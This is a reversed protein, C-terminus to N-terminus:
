TPLGRLQALTRPFAEFAADADEPTAIEKRAFAAAMANARLHAEPQRPDLRSLLDRIRQWSTFRPDRAHLAESFRQPAAIAAYVEGAQEAIAANLRGVAGTEFLHAIAADRAGPRLQALADAVISSLETRPLSPAAVALRIRDVPDAATLIARLPDGPAVGALRWAERHAALVKTEPIAIGQARQPMGNILALLAAEDPPTSPAAVPVAAQVAVIARFLMGARRPSLALGAQHLLAVVTRVYDALPEAQAARVVPIATRALAVANALRHAAAPDPLRDEARIVALQEAEGLRDWGLVPVVFAFRDALAADLPESGLYPTDDVDASPPNMAAWRYRLGELALGQARREHIIPFLKNQIDPRCRSIEDFIVAGAGWITAPTQLYQLKGDRDPLPFGILDDFSLLSANYHRYALGLTSAVRTLLLSKATGHPGILLLPEETALAAVLVPAIDEFGYLGLAGFIGAEPFCPRAALSKGHGRKDNTQHAARPM